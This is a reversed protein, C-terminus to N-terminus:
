SAAVATERSVNESLFKQVALYGFPHVGIYVCARLVPGIPMAHGLKLKILTGEKIGIAKCAKHADHRNLHQKMALAMAFFPFDFDSPVPFAKHLGYHAPGIGALPDVELAACLRLHAVTPVPEGIAARAIARVGVGARAALETLCAIPSPSLTCKASLADRLISRPGSLRSTTM